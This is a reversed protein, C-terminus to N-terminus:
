PSSLQVSVGYQNHSGPAPIQAGLALQWKSPFTLNLGAMLNSLSNKGSIYDAVFNLKDQLLPINAGLMYGLDNGEGVSAKNAYYGGALLKVKSNPLSFQNTLYSFNAFKLESPDHIYSAGMRTGIGTRLWDTIHVGKQVNV